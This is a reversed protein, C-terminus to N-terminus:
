SIVLVSKNIFVKLPIQQKLTEGHM